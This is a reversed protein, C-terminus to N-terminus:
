RQEEMDPKEDPTSALAVIRGPVAGLTRAVGGPSSNLPLWVVRDPLEATIALPLTVVGAPGTVTLPAGDAVGVEAATAPSLRAVAPHRTGALAEDGQQLVGNDLLQRWGALVAEGASPRPLPHALEIPADAREGRWPGFADLERRAAVVDPLGLHKDMADALMHLVRLDDNLHRQTLQDPKLAPEFSRVRGEWDLFTGAKEAVAAVPLVVDARATVASPRLELSVVFGARALAEDAAAPDPLDDIEVGGVLLADLEGAAAATII